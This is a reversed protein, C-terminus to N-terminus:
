PTCSQLNAKIRESADRFRQELDPDYDKGNYRRFETAIEQLRLYMTEPPNSYGYNQLSQRDNNGFRFQSQMVAMFCGYGDIFVNNRNANDDKEGGPACIQQIQPEGFFQQNTRAVLVPNMVTNGSGTKVTCALGDYKAALDYKTYATTNCSYHWAIGERSRGNEELAVALLVLPNLYLKGNGVPTNAATVSLFDICSNSGCKDLLSPNKGDRLYQVFDESAFMERMLAGYADADAKSLYLANCLGAPAEKFTEKLYTILTKFYESLEAGTLEEQLLKSGSGGYFKELGEYQQILYHPTFAMRRLFEHLATTKGPVEINTEPDTGEQNGQVRVTSKEVLEYSTQICYPAQPDQGTKTTPYEEWDQERESTGIIQGTNCSCPAAISGGPIPTCAYVTTKEKYKAYGKEESFYQREYGSTRMHVSLYDADPNTEKWPYIENEGKMISEYMEPSLFMPTIYAQAVDIDIAEDPLILYSHSTHYQNERADRSTWFIKGTFVNTITSILNAPVFPEPKPPDGPEPDTELKQLADYALSSSQESEGLTKNEQDIHCGPVEVPNFVPASFPGFGAQDAFPASGRTYPWTKQIGSNLRAVILTHLGRIFDRNLTTGGSTRLKEQYDEPFSAVFDNLYQLEEPSCEAASGNRTCPLCQWGDCYLIGPAVYEKNRFKVTYDQFPGTIKEFEQILRYFEKVITAKESFIRKQTELPLVPQYTKWLPGSFNDNNINVEETEKPNTPDIPYSRVQDPTYESTTIGSQYWVPVVTMKEGMRPDPIDPDDTLWAALMKMLYQATKLPHKSDFMINHQVLFGMKFVRPTQPTVSRVLQATLTDNELEETFNECREETLFGEAQEWPMEKNDALYIKDKAPCKTPDKEYEQCLDNVYKVYRVANLCQLQPSSLYFQPAYDSRRDDRLADVITMNPDVRSLDSEISIDGDQDRFLPFSVNTLNYQEQYEVVPYEGPGCMTPSGDDARGTELPDISSQPASICRVLTPGTGELKPWNVQTPACYAHTNALYKRWENIDTTQPFIFLPKKESLNVKPRPKDSLTVTGKCGDEIFAKWVTEKRAGDLGHMGFLGYDPSQQNDSWAFWVAAPVQSGYDELFGYVDKIYRASGEQDDTGPAYSTAVSSIETLWVSSAKQLLTNLYPEMQEPGRTYPHASVVSGNASLAEDMQNLYSMIEGEGGLFGGALVEAHEDVAGIKEAAKQVVLNLKAPDLYSGDVADPENWIEYADVKGQYQEAVKAAETSFDEVYKNFDGSIISDTGDGWYTEANLILIVGIDNNVFNDVVTDYFAFQSETTEGAGQNVKYVFRMWGISKVDETITEPYAGSHKPDINIGCRPREIAQVPAVVSQLTLLCIVAIALLKKWWTV